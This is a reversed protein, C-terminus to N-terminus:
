FSINRQDLISLKTREVEKGISRREQKQVSLLHSPYLFFRVSIKNWNEWEKSRWRDVIEKRPFWRSTCIREGDELKVAIEGREV